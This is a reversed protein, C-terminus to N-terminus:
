EWTISKSHQITLEVFGPYDIIVASPSIRQVLGRAKADEALVSVRKGKLHPFNMHQPNAIYIAEEVLLVEDEETVIPLADFLAQSSKIIHLM